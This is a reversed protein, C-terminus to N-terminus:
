SLDQGRAAGTAILREIESTELGTEALVARTDYGTPMAARGPSAAVGADLVTPRITRIDGETPHLQTGLLGVAALHPDSALTDLTHCPMAPVDAAEFRALWEATTRQGIAHTRLALWAGTNRYRDAVTRFRLDEILDDRDIARLFARVQGDTNATVSVWGDATRLPRHDKSLARADGAPGIPPTFTQGTLHEQLVFAAMTEHM